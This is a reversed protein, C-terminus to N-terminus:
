ADARVEAERRSIEAYVAAATEDLEACKASKVQWGDSFVTVGPRTNIGDMLTSHIRRAETCTQSHLEYLDELTLTDFM